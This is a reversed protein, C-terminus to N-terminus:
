DGVSEFLPLMTAQLRLVAKAYIQSVRSATVGMVEAIEAQGLDETLLLTLVLREQEPLRGVAVTLRDLVEHKHALEEPTQANRDAIFERWDSSEGEAGLGELFVLTSPGVDVYAQRLDEVSLKLKDAVEDDTAPRGQAQELEHHARQIQKLRQRSQKSLWDQRRLEDLMAGRVRHTAFTAFAAGDNERYKDFAQILGLTGASLLDDELNTAARPPLGIRLRSFVRKVLPLHAEILAARAGPDKKHRWASWHDELQAEAAM